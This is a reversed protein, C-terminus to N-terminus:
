LPTKWFSCLRHYQLLYLASAALNIWSNEILSSMLSIQLLLTDAARGVLKKKLTITNKM